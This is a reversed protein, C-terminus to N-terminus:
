KRRTKRKLPNLTSINFPKIKQKLLSGRTFTDHSSPYNPAIPSLFPIGFTTVNVLYTISVILAIAIGLFGMSIGVLIFVFRMMRVAYNLSSDPIAFSSLGTLAVIIVLIPSVINADVAAQGLILAGVIGITPGITTPVRVGAERILEFSIEMLIVEIINPFPLVERASAISVALDSPIMESHYSTIAVYLAPLLLAILFAILRIIRIFNGYPMRQYQDEAAHFLAWFTAPAILCSPSGDIILIVHGESLFFTARDPRETYLLTPVLSYSRNEIYQELLSVNLITDFPINKIRNKVDNVVDPDAIGEIYMVYITNKYKEGVEISESILNECKLYKRILSRNVEASEVFAEKSDKITNEIVPKEIARHEFEQTSFCIAEKCNELLLITNGQIIAKTILPIDTIKKANKNTIINNIISSIIDNGSTQITNILPEIIDKTLTNVCVCGSLYVLTGKINLASIYVPRIIFDHNKSSFFINELTELDKSLDGTLKEKNINQDNKKFSPSLSSNKKTLKRYSTPM